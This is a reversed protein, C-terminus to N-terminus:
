GCIPNDRFFHHIGPTLRKTTTKNEDLCTFLLSCSTYDTSPFSSRVPTTVISVGQHLLAM